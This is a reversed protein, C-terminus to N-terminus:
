PRLHAPPRRRRRYRPRGGGGGDGDQSPGAVERRRVREAEEKITLVEESFQLFGKWARESGLMAAVVAPLSLDGGVVATLVRRQDAWEPCVELTHQASDEEHGCHHCRTTRERGIRCLYAGFCGHGTIVQTARYSLGGWGRGLWDALRPQVAAVVRKTAVSPRCLWASWAAVLRRRARVRVLKVARPPPNNGRNARRLEAMEFYVERRMSALLELPPQGALATAAAHSITRYGRIARIAV